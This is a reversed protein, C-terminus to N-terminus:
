RAADRGEGADTADGHDQAAYRLAAARALSDLGKSRLRSVLAEAREKRLRLVDLASQGPAPPPGEPPPVPLPAPPGAPGAPVPMAGGPGAPQPMGPMGPSGQPAEIVEDGRGPKSFGGAARVEDAKVKLGLEIMARAAQLKRDSEPKEVDFVWWVPFDAWPYTNKQIVNVLGPERESGTLTSALNRADFLTIAAKTSQQFLAGAENGMGSSTGRSSAQQGVVYREMALDVYEILRLLADAGSTPVEMREVGAGDSKGADPDVPVIVHARSSQTRAAEEVAAKAEANGRPYKWINVGLGVRDFFDTINSLWEKKLWDQWFLKSRLGVGHIAEGREPEFFDADEQLHRHIIFRERWTGRLALARGRTTSIVDPRPLDDARSADVLVYPTHDLQHGIKDGHVPWHEKVTLGRIRVPRAKPKRPVGLSGALPPGGAGPDGLLSQLPAPMSYPVGGQRPLRKRMGPRQPLGPPPYDKFAEWGWAVQVAYRGYWVARLLSELIRNLFPIGRVLRELGDRVQKQRKDRSDPVELHWGLSSVALMREQVIAMLWADRDMAAAQQRSYRLAEDFRDHWYTHNGGTVRAVFSWSHPLSIGIPRADGDKEKGVPIPKGNADLLRPRGNLYFPEDM